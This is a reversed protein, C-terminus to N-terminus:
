ECIAVLIFHCNILKSNWTNTVVNLAKFCSALWIEHFGEKQITLKFTIYDFAPLRHQISHNFWRPCVKTPSVIMRHSSKKKKKKKQGPRNLTLKNKSMGCSKIWPDPQDHIQTKDKNKYFLCHSKVARYISFSSCTCLMHWCMVRPREQLKLVYVCATCLTYLVKM